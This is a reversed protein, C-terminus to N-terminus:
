CVAPGLYTSAPKRYGRDSVPSPGKMIEGWFSFFSGPPFKILIDSRALLLMEIVTDDRVTYARSGSHLEGEGIQRFKKPRTVIGPFASRLNNEVALNDTCLFLIPDTGTAVKLSRIVRTTVAVIRCLAEGPNHWFHAHGYSGGNGHRVHMAIVPQNSLYEAVFTEVASAIPAQLQLKGLLRRCEARSPIADNLCGDFVVVPAAVDDGNLILNLAAERDFLVDADARRPRRHLTGINWSSPYCPGMPVLNNVRDDGFFPVGGWLSPPDFIMSFANNRYHSVYGSFRWDAILTRGTTRAFRWAALLSLLCDGLGTWRKSVVIRGQDVDKLSRM